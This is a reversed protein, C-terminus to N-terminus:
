NKNLQMTLWSTLDKFNDNSITHTTDYWKTTINVGKDKLFQADEVMRNYPLKDDKRGHSIFIDLNKKQSESLKLNKFEPYLQGSLSLIGALEDPYSMATGLSMIAGQSFGGLYIQNSDVKYKKKVFNIFAIVQEVATLVEPGKYRYGEKGPVLNYWSYSGERLTLPARPTIVMLRDDLHKAFSFLDKENSGLGHLLILVPPPAASPAKPSRLEHVLELSPVNISAANKNSPKCSVISIIFFLFLINKM